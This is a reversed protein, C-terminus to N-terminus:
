YVQLLFERRHLLEAAFAALLQPLEVNVQDHGTEIICAHTTPCHEKRIEVFAEANIIV